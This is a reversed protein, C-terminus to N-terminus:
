AEEAEAFLNKLRKVENKKEENSDQRRKYRATARKSLLVRNPTLEGESLSWPQEDESELSNPPEVSFSVRRSRKLDEESGNVERPSHDALIHMRIFAEKEARTLAEVLRRLRQLNEQDCDVIELTMAM